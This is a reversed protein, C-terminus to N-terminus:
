IVQRDITRVAEEPAERAAQCSAAHSRKDHLHVIVAGTLTQLQQDVVRSLRRTLQGDGISVRLLLDRTGHVPRALEYAPPLQFLAEAPIVQRNVRICVRVEAPLDRPM